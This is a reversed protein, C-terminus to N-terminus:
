DVYKIIKSPNGVVVAYPPVDETIISNSGIIAGKGITVGKMITSNFGIWVDDHIIIEKENLNINEQFGKKFIHVFDKHREVSNLPHSNNDHINVNHAILVRNGIHIKKASWIKSDQGVFCDDGILIEGGHKFLVLYGKIHCNNGIRIKEKDNQSNQLIAESYIKSEEGIVASMHLRELHIKQFENEDRIKGLLYIKYLLDSLSAKIIKKIM